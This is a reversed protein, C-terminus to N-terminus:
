KLSVLVERRPDGQSQTWATWVMTKKERKRYALRWLIGM